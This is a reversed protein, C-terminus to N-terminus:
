SVFRVSDVCYESPIEPIEPIYAGSILPNLEIRIPNYSAFKSEMGPDIFPAESGGSWFPEALPTKCDSPCNETVQQV